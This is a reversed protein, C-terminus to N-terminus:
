TYGAKENFKIIGCTGLTRPAAFRRVRFKVKEFVSAIKDVM